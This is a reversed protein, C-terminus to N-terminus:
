MLSALLTSNSGYQGMVPITEHSASMTSDSTFGCGHSEFTQLVTIFLHKLRSQVPKSLHSHNIMLLLCDQKCQAYAVSCEKPSKLKQTLRQSCFRSSFVSFGWFGWVASFDDYYNLVFSHSCGSGASEILSTRSISTCFQVFDAIM